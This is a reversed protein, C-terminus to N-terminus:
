RGSVDTVFSELAQELEVGDQAGLLELLHAYAQPGSLQRTKAFAQEVEATGLRAQVRGLASLEAAHTGKPLAYPDLEATFRQIKAPEFVGAAFRAGGAAFFTDHGVLEAIVVSAEPTSVLRALPAYRALAGVSMSSLEAGLKSMEALVDRGFRGSLKEWPDPVSPRKWVPRTLAEDHLMKALAGRLAAQQAECTMSEMLCRSTTLNSTRDLALFREVDLTGVAQRVNRYLPDRDPTLGATELWCAGGAVQQSWSPLYRDRIVCEDYAAACGGSAETLGALHRNSESARCVIADFYEYSDRGYKAALASLDGCALELCGATDDWEYCAAAAASDWTADHRAECFSRQCDRIADEAYFGFGQDPISWGEEIDDVNTAQASVEACVQAVYAESVGSLCNDSELILRTRLDAHQKPTVGADVLTNLERCLARNHANIAANGPQYDENCARAGKTAFDYDDADCVAACPWLANNVIDIRYAFGPLGDPEAALDYISGDVFDIFAAAPWESQPPPYQFVSQLRDWVKEVIGWRQTEPLLPVYGCIGYGYNYIELERSDGRRRYADISQANFTITFTQANAAGYTADCSAGNLCATDGVHSSFEHSAEHVLVSARDVASLNWFWPYYLKNPDDNNPNAAYVYGDSPGALDGSAICRPRWGEERTYYRVYRSLWLKVPDGEPMLAGPSASQEFTDQDRNVGVYDASFAGNAFRGSWSDPDCALVDGMLQAWSSQWNQGLGMADIFTNIVGERTPLAVLAGGDTSGCWVSSIWADGSTAADIWGWADFAEPTPPCPEAWAPSAVVTLVALHIAGRM